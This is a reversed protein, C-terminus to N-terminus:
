VIRKFKKEIEYKSMSIITPRGHPCNYPNELELLQEILQDAEEYTLSNNGKVAAKCAMSAIKERIIQPVGRVPSESMQTLIEEFLEKINYSFLDLPVGRVAYANMGFDEIDFGLDKFYQTYSNILDAEKPTVNIIVPPTLIQTYIENNEVKKLIQEYKVKEHAAHQDIMLMKDRYEIIWYTDFVQGVIRYEQKAERTLLKEDFFNLQEPREVIIHEKAKIVGLNQADSEKPPTGLIKGIAPNPMESNTKQELEALATKSRNDVFFDNNDADSGILPEKGNEERNYSLKNHFLFQGTREHQNAAGSHDYSSGSSVPTDSKTRNYGNDEKLINPVREALKREKEFPEPAELKVAGKEKKAPKKEPGPAANPIMEQRSLFDAINEAILKYIGNQNSFRVEMKTPHVNVDVSETPVTIHVVCFPYRHQMMYSQYGEEIAKSIIKSKIYRNNVFYNEFNRNARNLTPKGLFGDLVIDEDVIQFEMMENAIDRGFIRYIIAKMDGDGNTYFKTQGNIVYKFSIEPRSLAMHELLDTIYSAETMATKLFKRRVPTNFFLNRVIFTTGDPAGVEEFDTEKAGDLCFRTGTMDGKTKTVLEVKSVAAISSLAEGRFGMSHLSMLDAVSSIKSTAHRMFANRVQNHEIGAGDDTVRIFEIGGEKIEVTIARAGADMANEVLEKVVSAPREVVEGAAIKDITADDLVHIQAM